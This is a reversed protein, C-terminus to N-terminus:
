EETEEEYINEEIIDAGPAGYGEIIPGSLERLQEAKPTANLPSDDPIFPRPDSRAPTVDRLKATTTTDRAISALQAFGSLAIRMVEESVGLPLAKLDEQEVKAVNLIKGAALLRAQDDDSEHMVEHIVEIAEGTLARARLKVSDQFDRDTLSILEEPNLSELPNM